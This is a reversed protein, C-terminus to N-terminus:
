ARFRNLEQRLETEKISVTRLNRPRKESFGVSGTLVLLDHKSTYKFAAWRPIELYTALHNMVLDFTEDLTKGGAVAPLIMKLGFYRRTTEQRLRRGRTMSPLLGSIGVLLFILGATIVTAELIKRGSEDRLYPVAKFADQHGLLQVIAFGTLLGLGTIIRNFANRDAQLRGGGIKILSILVILFTSCFLVDHYLQPM